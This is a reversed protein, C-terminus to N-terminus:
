KSRPSFDLGKVIFKHDGCDLTLEIVRAPKGEVVASHEQSVAHCHLVTNPGLTPPGSALQVGIDPAIMPRLIAVNQKPEVRLYVFVLPDSKSRATIAGCILLGIGGILIRRLNRRSLVGVLQRTM